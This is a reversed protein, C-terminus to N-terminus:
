TSTMYITQKKFIKHETFDLKKARGRFMDAALMHQYPEDGSVLLISIPLRSLHDKLQSFRIQM